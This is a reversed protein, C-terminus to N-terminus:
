LNGLCERNSHTFYLVGFQLYYQKISNISIFKFYFIFYFIHYLIQGLYSWCFNAFYIYWSCKHVWKGHECRRRAGANCAVGCLRRVEDDGGHRATM